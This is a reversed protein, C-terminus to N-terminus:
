EAPIQLIALPLPQTPYVEIAPTLGGPSWTMKVELEACLGRHNELVQVAFEPGPGIPLPHAPSGSNAVNM